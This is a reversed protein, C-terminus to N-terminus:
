SVQRYSKVIPVRVKDSFAQMDLKHYDEFHLPSHLIIQMRGPRILLSGRPLCRHAGIITVPVVPAHAYRALLLSGKKFPAVSEGFTRTGEPYIVFSVGKKIEKAAARFGRLTERHHRRSVPISGSRRLHWGLFPWRFLSAKAAFRIQFPLVALFAWHDFMSLHNAAFIYGKDHDLKEIEKIEVKVRSLKLIFLSWTHACGHQLRGSGDILSLLVSLSGM